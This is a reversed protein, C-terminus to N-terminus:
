PKFEWLDGSWVSEQSHDRVPTWFDGNMNEWCSYWGSDYRVKSWPWEEDFRFTIPWDDLTLEEVGEGKNDVVAVENAPPQPQPEQEQEEVLEMPKNDDNNEEERTEIIEVEYLTEEDEQEMTKMAMSRTVITRNNPITSLAKTARVGNTRGKDTMSASKSSNGSEEVREKCRNRGRAGYVSNITAKKM